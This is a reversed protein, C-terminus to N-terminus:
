EKMVKFVKREGDKGIVAVFYIGSPLQGMPITDKGAAIAGQQVAYGTINTIAYSCANTADIHLENWVPNPYLTAFYSGNVNVVGVNTPTDPTGCSTDFTVKRIRKPDVDGVYLNNCSDFALGSAYYISAATAPGGDGGFTTTGNGAVSHFVGSNDIKYVRFNINDDGIYLNNDGDMKIYGPCFQATNAAMGDGTYTSSGNGAFTSITGTLNVKRIRFNGRDSIYINGTDDATVDIPVWLEAATAPGNDGSFGYSGIGAFTTIIGSPNIKRVANNSKDAIYFNGFKDFCIGDPVNLQASTAPFGDGSYGVVGTGAFTSIIGTSIDIKRINYNGPDSVYINGFTDLAIAVPLRFRAATAQFGDGSNGVVGTGAITSIIGSTNVKRVKYGGLASVIYMEGNKNFTCGIPDPIQSATAPIGDGGTGGGAFTTITQAGALIPLCFLLCFIKRM